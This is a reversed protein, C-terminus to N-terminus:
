EAEFRALVEGDADTLLLVGNELQWGRTSELARTFDAEQDMVGDCYMRTSVLMGFSLEDGSLTYSGGFLNCGTAGSAHRDDADLMLSPAREAIPASVGAGHLSVLRWTIDEIPAAEGAGVEHRGTEADRSTAGPRAEIFRDPVLAPELADGEMAPRLAITAELTVLVEEGPEERVALYGTELAINDAEMSVPFRLGIRCETFLAADAMYRYMGSMTLRPEIREFEPTRRLTYNMGSTIERGEADLLQVADGDGSIGILTPQEGEGRLEIVNQDTGNLSPRADWRGIDDYTFDRELYTMSQFYSGDPFLNLRVDIGPCDACPIRGAFSAPLEGISAHVDGSGADSTSAPTSTAVCGAFLLAAIAVILAHIYRM